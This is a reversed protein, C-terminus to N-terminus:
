LVGFLGAAIALKGVDCRAYKGLLYIYRCVFAPSHEYYGMAHTVEHLLVSYMREHRSISILGRGSCQSRPLTPSLELHPASHRKRGDEAWVRDLLRQLAPFSREREAYFSTINWKGVLRDFYYVRRTQAARLQKSHTYYITKM